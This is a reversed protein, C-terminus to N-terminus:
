FSKAVEGSALLVDGAEEGLADGAGVEDGLALAGEAVLAGACVASGTGVEM